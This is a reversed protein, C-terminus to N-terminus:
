MKEFRLRREDCLKEKFHLKKTFYDDSFSSFTRSRQLWTAEFWEDAAM